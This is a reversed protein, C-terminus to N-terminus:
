ARAGFVGAPPASALMLFANVRPRMSGFTSGNLFTQVEIARCMAMWRRRAGGDISIGPLREANRM